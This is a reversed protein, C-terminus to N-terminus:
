GGRAKARLVEAAAPEGREELFDAAVEWAARDKEVSRHVEANLAFRRQFEGALKEPMVGPRALLEIENFTFPLPGYQRSLTIAESAVNYINAVAMPEYEWGDEAERMLGHRTGFEVAKSAM